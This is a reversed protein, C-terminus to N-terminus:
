KMNFKSRITRFYSFLLYLLITFFIPGIAFYSVAQYTTSYTRFESMLQSNEPHKRDYVVQDLPLFMKSNALFEFQIKWSNKSRNFITDGKASIYFTKAVSTYKLKEFFTVEDGELSKVYLTTKVGQNKFIEHDRWKSFFWYGNLGFSILFCIFAQKKNIKSLSIPKKQM